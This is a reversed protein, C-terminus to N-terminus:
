KLDDLDIWYVDAVLRGDLLERYWERNSRAIADRGYPGVLALKNDATLATSLDGPLGDLTVLRNGSMNYVIYSFIDRNDGQSVRAVLYDGAMLFSAGGDTIGVLSAFVGDRYTWIIQQLAPTHDEPVHSVGTSDKWALAGDITFAYREPDWFLVNRASEPFEISVSAVPEEIYRLLGDAIWAIRGGLNVLIGGYEVTMIRVCEGTETDLRYIARHNLSMDKDHMVAAFFYLKGDHLRVQSVSVSDGDLYENLTKDLPYTM